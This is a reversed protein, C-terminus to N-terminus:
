NEEWSSTKKLVFDKSTPLLSEGAFALPLM